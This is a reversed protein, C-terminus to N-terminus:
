RTNKKFCHRNNSISRFIFFVSNRGQYENPLSLQVGLLPRGRLSSSLITPTTSPQITPEFYSMVNASQLGGGDKADIHCPVSHISTRSIADDLAYNMKIMNNGSM